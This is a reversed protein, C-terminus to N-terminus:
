PTRERLEAWDLRAGLRQVQGVVARGQQSLYREAPAVFTATRLTVVVDQGRPTPPLAVAYERAGTTNATFTGAPRGDVLVSVPPAAGAFSAWARGDVRLALM